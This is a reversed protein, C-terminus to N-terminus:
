KQEPQFVVIIRKNKTDGKGKEWVISSYVPKHPKSWEAMNFPCSLKSLGWIGLRAYQIFTAAISGCPLIFDQQILNGRNGAYPRQASWEALFSRQRHERVIYKAYNVLVMNGLEM